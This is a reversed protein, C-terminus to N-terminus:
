SHDGKQEKAARRDHFAAAARRAAAESGFYGLFHEKGHVKVRARYQEKAPRQSGQRPATSRSVGGEGHKTGM